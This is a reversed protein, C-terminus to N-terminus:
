KTITNTSKKRQSIIDKVIIYKDLQLLKYHETDAPPYYKFGILSLITTKLSPGGHPKTNVDAPQLHTHKYQLDFLLRRFQEQLFGLPIDLHRATSTIKNNHIEDILPQNDEHITTPGIQPFGLQFLSRRLVATTKVCQLLTIMETHNSSLGIMAQKKCIWHILVNNIMWLASSISRRDSIDRGQDADAFGQLVLRTSPDSLYEAHGHKSSATLLFPREITNRPFFLPYHPHHYIYQM